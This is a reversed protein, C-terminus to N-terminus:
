PNWRSKTVRTSPSPGSMGWQSKCAQLDNKRRSAGQTFKVTETSCDTGLKILVSMNRENEM